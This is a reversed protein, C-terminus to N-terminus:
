GLGGPLGPVRIEHGSRTDEAFPTPPPHEATTPIPSARLAQPVLLKAVSWSDSSDRRAFFRYESSDAHEAQMRAALKVATARDM